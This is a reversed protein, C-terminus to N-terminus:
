KKNIKDFEALLVAMSKKDNRMLPKKLEKEVKELADFMMTEVGHDDTLGRRCLSFPM